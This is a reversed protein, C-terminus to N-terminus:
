YLLKLEKLDFEKMVNDEMLVKLCGNNAVGKIFGMILTGNNLKFTSPKNRRFLNREYAKKLKSLERNVIWAEYKKINEIIKLLVEDKQYYVGTIKKLSSANTVGDFNTQNLNLGVGIISASLKGNQIISEILIGCIKSNVSLIDNPWKIKLQPITFYVLTDYIALSVAMSLYFLEDKDLCEIRKFVSFTLNKGAESVWKTGMQGRGADQRNTTVVTYDELEKQIALQRLFSNTSDTADLKILNM